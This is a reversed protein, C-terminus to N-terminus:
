LVHRFYTKVSSIWDSPCKRLSGKDSPCELSNGDMRSEWKCNEMRQEVLDHIDAVTADFLFVSTRVTRNESVTRRQHQRWRFALQTMKFVSLIFHLWDLLFSVTEKSSITLLNNKGNFHLYLPVVIAVVITLLLVSLLIIKVLTIMQTTSGIIIRSPRFLQSHDLFFSTYKTKWILSSTWCNACLHTM